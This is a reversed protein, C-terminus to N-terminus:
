LLQRDLLQGGVEAEHKRHCALTKERWDERALLRCNCSHEQCAREPPAHRFAAAETLDAAKPVSRANNSQRKGGLVKKNLKELVKLPPQKNKYSCLERKESCSDDCIILGHM